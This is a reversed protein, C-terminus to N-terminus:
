KKRGNLQVELEVFQERLEQTDHQSNAGKSCSSNRLWFKWGYWGGGVLIQATSFNVHRALVENTKTDVIEQEHRWRNFMFKGYKKVVKNIRQNIFYTDTFNEKDGLRIVSLNEVLAEAVGPNMKKWQDLTKYVWFGSETKCYYQHVAVTPIWDWFPILYMVLAASWGWYRASKGNNKAYKIAGVVVAISILLYLVLAGLIALGM